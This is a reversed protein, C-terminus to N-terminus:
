EEQNKPRYHVAWRKSDINSLFVYNNKELEKVKSRADQISDFVDALRYTHGRVLKRQERKLPDYPIRIGDTRGYIEDWLRNRNGVIWWIVWKMEDSMKAGLVSTKGTKLNFGLEALASEIQKLGELDTTLRMDLASLVEYGYATLWLDSLDYMEEPDDWEDKVRVQVRQMEKNRTKIIEHSKRAIEPHISAVEDIRLGTTAAGMDAAISIEEVIAEILPYRVTAFSTEPSSILPDIAEWLNCDIFGYNGLGLAFLIDQQVRFDRRFSAWVRLLFPWPYTGTPSKYVTTKEKEELYLWSHSICNDDLIISVRSENLRFILPTLDVSQLKNSQLDVHGLNSCSAVPSLDISEINNGILTIAILKSCSTLPSLDISKLENADLTLYELNTCTNLSSLDITQLKNGNLFLQQLSRHAELPSLDIIQLQNQTLNLKELKSCAAM